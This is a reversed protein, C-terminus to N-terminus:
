WDLELESPLRARWFALVLNAWPEQWSLCIGMAGKIRTLAFVLCCLVYLTEGLLTVQIGEAEIAQSPIGIDVVHWEGVAAAAPYLLM